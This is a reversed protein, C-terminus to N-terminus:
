AAETAQEGALHYGATHADRLVVRAVFLLYEGQGGVFKFSVFKWHWAISIGVETMDIAIVHLQGIQILECWM